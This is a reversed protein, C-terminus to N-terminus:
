MAVICGLSIYFRLHNGFSRSMSDYYRFGYGVTTVVKGVPRGIIVSLDYYVYKWAQNDLTAGAGAHFNFHSKGLKFAEYVLKAGGVVNMYHDKNGEIDFLSVADELNLGASFHDTFNYGFTYAIEVHRKGNGSFASLRADVGSWMDGKKMQGFLSTCLFLLPLLIWIFKSFLRM